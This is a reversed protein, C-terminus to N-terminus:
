VSRLTNFRKKALLHILFFVIINVFSLIVEFFGSFEARPSYLIAMVGPFAFTALWVNYRCFSTFKAMLLAYFLSGMVIGFYGFDVWLEAIYCSGLGFGRIFAEKYYLYSIALSFQHGELAQEPTFAQYHPVNFFLEALANEKFFSIIPGFSYFKNEPLSSENEKAYGIVNATMGQSFAFMGVNNALSGSNYKEDSRFSAFALLFTLLFPTLIVLPFIYKRKFWVVSGSNIQDRIILYIFIFLVNLIFGNRQGYGLSLCGVIFFIILPLKCDKKSPMTALFLFTMAEYLMGIKLVVFPLNSVYDTYYAEYGLNQVLMAKEIYILLQPFLSIYMLIKSMKRISKIYGTEYNLPKVKAKKCTEETIVYGLRLFILSIFISIFIHNMIADSFDFGFAFASNDPFLHFIIIRGVLFTFFTIQFIFFIFRKKFNKLSFVINWIILFNICGIIIYRNNTYIGNVFLLSAMILIVIDTIISKNIITELSHTKM